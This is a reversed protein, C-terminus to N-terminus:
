ESDLIEIKQDFHFQFNQGTTTELTLNSEVNLDPFDVLFEDKVEVRGKGYVHLFHRDCNLKASSVESINRRFNRLDLVFDNRLKVKDFVFVTRSSPALNKGTRYILQPKKLDEIRTQFQIELNQRLFNGRGDDLGSQPITFKYIHGPQFNHFVRFSKELIVLNKLEVGELFLKSRLRIPRSFFLILTSGYFIEPTFNKLELPSEFSMSSTTNFYWREGLLEEIGGTAGSDQSFFVNRLITVEVISNAPLTKPYIVAEYLPKEFFTTDSINGFRNTSFFDIKSIPISEGAIVVVGIRLDYYVPDRFRLYLSTRTSIELSGPKPFVELIKPMDFYKGESQVHFRFGSKRKSKRGDVSKCFNEGVEVEYKEDPQLQNKSIYWSIHFEHLIVDLDRSTQQLLIGYNGLLRLKAESDSFVVKESFYINVVVQNRRISM